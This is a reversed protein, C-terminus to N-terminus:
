VLAMWSVYFVGAEGVSLGVAFGVIGGAAGAEEGVFDGVGELQGRVLSGEAM